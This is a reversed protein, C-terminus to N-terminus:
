LCRPYSNSKAPCRSFCCGGMERFPEFSVPHAQGGEGLGGRVQGELYFRYRRTDTNGTKQGLAIVTKFVMATPEKGGVM